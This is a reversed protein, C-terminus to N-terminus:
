RTRTGQAEMCRAKLDRYREGEIRKIGLSAAKADIGAETQWWDKASGNPPKPATAEALMALRAAGPAAPASPAAPPQPAPKPRDIRPRPATTADITAAALAKARDVESAQPAGRIKAKAAEVQEPTSRRRSEAIQEERTLHRHEPETKSTEPQSIESPQQGSAPPASELRPRVEVDDKVKPEVELRIKDPSATRTVPADCTRLTHTVPADRMKRMRNQTLARTKATNTNHRDSHSITLKRTKEDLHLWAVDTMAAVFGPCRMVGELAKAYCPTVVGDRANQDFWVWFRVVLGLAYEPEKGLLEAIRAVEPKDITAHEVKIWPGSM